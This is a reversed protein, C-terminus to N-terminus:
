TSLDIGNDDFTTQDKGGPYVAIVMCAFYIAYMTGVMRIAAPDRWLLNGPLDQVCLLLADVLVMILVGIFLAISQVGRFFEGCRNTSIHCAGAYLRWFFAAIPLVVAVVAIANPFQPLALRVLYPVVVITVPLLGDWGVLRLIWTGIISQEHHNM